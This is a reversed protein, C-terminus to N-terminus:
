RLLSLQEAELLWRLEGGGRCLGRVDVCALSAKKMRVSGGGILQGVNESFDPEHGVLLLRDPVGDANLLEALTPFACGCALRSVERVHKELGLGAAAIEATQRARVLPSTWIEEVRLELARMGRAVRRMEEIGESTLPRERDTLRGPKPDEAIGHRLFYLKM